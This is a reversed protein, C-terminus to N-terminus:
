RFAEEIAAARATINLHAYRSVMRLTTHGLVDALLPASAGKAALHSACSHRLDHFRIAPLGADRLARQFAGDFNHPRDKGSACGFVLTDPEKPGITRLEAVMRETLHAVIPRGNKTRPVTARRGNLDVDRWRLGMLSGRRLGTTFAMLILVSLPRWRALRACAILREVQDATLYVMRGPNEPLQEVGVLPSTWARPVLRRQRAFKVLSGLASRYRNLTSPSLPKGCCRQAGAPARGRRLQGRAALRDMAAEVMEASVDVLEHEGLEDRWFDLRAPLAEDRGSYSAVFADIVHTVKM